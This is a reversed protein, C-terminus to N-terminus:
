NKPDTRLAPSYHEQRMKELSDGVSGIFIEEILLFSAAGAVAVSGRMRSAASAVAEANPSLVRSITVDPMKHRMGVSKKPQHGMELVWRTSPSLAWSARVAPAGTVVLPNDTAYHQFFWRLDIHARGDVLIDETVAYSQNTTAKGSNRTSRLNLRAAKAEQHAVSKRDEADKLLLDVTKLKRSAEDFRALADIRMQEPETNIAMETFVRRSEQVEFALAARQARLAEVRNGWVIDATTLRSAARELAIPTDAVYHLRIVDGEQTGRLVRETLRSSNFEAMGAGSTALVQSTRQVSRGANEISSNMLAGAAGLSAVALVEIAIRSAHIREIAMPEAENAHAVEGAFLHGVSFGILGASFVRKFNGM